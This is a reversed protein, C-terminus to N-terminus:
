TKKPIKYPGYKRPRLNHYTGVPFREKRLFGIVMDGEQLVKNWRHKDDVAKYKTNSKELNYKVEAQITQVDRVMNEATAHLGPIKPPWALNVVHIHPKM